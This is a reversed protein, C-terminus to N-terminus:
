KVAAMSPEAPAMFKTGVYPAPILGWMGTAKLTRFVSKFYHHFSRGGICVRSLELHDESGVPRDSTAARITVASKIGCERLVDLTKQDYSGYPYAFSVPSEGINERIERISRSIERAQRTRTHRALHIHNHAHSGIEWGRKSLTRLAKWTMFNAPLKEGAEDWSLDRAGIDGTIVFVTAPVNFRELVPLGETFNDEYGDDFTVVAIKGADAKLADKLTAFRFGLLKLFRLQFALLRPTTFLNRHTANVPPYGVRHFGLILIQSPM